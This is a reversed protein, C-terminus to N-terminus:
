QIQSQWWRPKGKHLDERMAFFWALVKHSFSFQEDLCGEVKFLRNKRQNKKEKEKLKDNISKKKKKKKDCSLLMFIFDFFLSCNCIKFFLFDLCVLGFIDGSEEWNM